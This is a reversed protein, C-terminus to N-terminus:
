IFIAALFGVLYCKTEGTKNRKIENLKTETRENENRKTSKNRKTKASQLSVTEGGSQISGGAVDSVLVVSKIEGEEREGRGTVRQGCEERSERERLSM